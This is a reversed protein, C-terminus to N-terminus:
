LLTRKGKGTAVLRTGSENDGEGRLVIGSTNIHITGPINYIGKKLLIAGRFGNKDSESAVLEDIAKQIIDQSSGTKAPSITKQIPIHPIDKNGQHYGVHSFDPIINGLEDPTYRLSGDENLSVYQSEWLIMEPHFSTTLAILICAILINRIKHKNM